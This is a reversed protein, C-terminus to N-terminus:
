RFKRGTAGFLNLEQGSVPKVEKAAAQEKQWKKFADVDADGLGALAAIDEHKSKLASPKKGEQLMVNLIHKCPTRPVNRTFSMCGCAWGDATTSGDVKSFYHTVIYPPHASGQYGWQEAQMPASAKDLKWIEGVTRVKAAKPPNIGMAKNYAVVSDAKVKYCNQCLVGGGNFQQGKKVYVGCKSCVMKDKEELLKKGEMHCTLCVHKGIMMGSLGLSPYTEHCTTYCRECHLPLQYEWGSGPQAANFQTMRKEADLWSEVTLKGWECSEWNCHGEGDKVNTNRRQYYKPRQTLMRRDTATKNCRPCIWHNGGNWSVVVSKPNFKDDDTHSCTAQAM